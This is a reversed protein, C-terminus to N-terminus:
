RFQGPRGPVPFIRGMGRIVLEEEEQVLLMGDLTYSLNPREGEELESLLALGEQSPNLEFRFNETGNASIGARSPAKYIALTTEDLSLSFEIQQLLMAETNVNRVGLDVQILSGDMSIGNLKVFPAKGRIGPSACSFLVLTCALLFLIHNRSKM